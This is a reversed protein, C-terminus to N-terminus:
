LPGLEEASEACSKRIAVPVRTYWWARKELGYKEVLVDKTLRHLGLEYRRVLEYLDGYYRSAPGYRPAVQVLSPDEGAVLDAIPKSALSPRDPLRLTPATGQPM